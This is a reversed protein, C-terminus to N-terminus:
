WTNVVGFFMFLAGLACVALGLIIVSSRWQSNLAIFTCLGMGILIIVIGAFFM